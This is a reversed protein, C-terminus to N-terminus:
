EFGRNCTEGFGRNTENKIFLFFPTTHQPALTPRSILQGPPHNQNAVERQGPGPGPEVFGQAILWEITLDASGDDVIIIETPACSQNSYHKAAAVVSPLFQKLLDLGNWTPIVISVGPTM